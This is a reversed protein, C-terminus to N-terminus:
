IIAIEQGIKLHQSYMKILYFLLFFFNLSVLKNPQSEDIALFVHGFQGHGLLKQILYKGAIMEGIIKSSAM